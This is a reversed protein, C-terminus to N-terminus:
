VCDFSVDEFKIGQTYKDLVGQFDKLSRESYVKSVAKMADLNAGAYKLGYKGNVIANVDEIAGIMIKTLLM